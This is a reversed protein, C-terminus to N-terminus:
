PEYAESELSLPLTFNFCSGGQPNAEVWLRGHHHEIISRCINLGMGMGSGKTTYFPKFLQEMQEPNIGTGRDAITVALMDHERRVNVDLTRQSVPTDAMAEIANKMLNFIVQELMVADAYIPPLESVDSVTLKVQSKKVEANLLTQVTELLDAIECRKRHPARRQVFERIGRIIQGARKAQAAM